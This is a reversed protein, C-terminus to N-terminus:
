NGLIEDIKKKLVSAMVLKVPGNLIKTFGGLFGDVVPSILPLPSQYDFTVGEFSNFTISDVFPRSLFNAMKLVITFSTKAANITLPISFRKFPLLSSITSLFIISTKSNFTINPCSLSATVSISSNEFMFRVLNFHKLVGFTIVDVPGLTVNFDLPTDNFPLPDFSTLNALITDVTVDLITNSSTGALFN